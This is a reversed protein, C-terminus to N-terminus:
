EGTGRSFLIGLGRGIERAAAPAGQMMLSAPNVTIAPSAPQGISEREMAALDPNVFTRVPGEPTPPPIERIPLPDPITPIESVPAVEGFPNSTDVRRAVINEEPAGIPNM